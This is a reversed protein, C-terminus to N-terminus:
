GIEVWLCGTFVPLNTFRGVSRDCSMRLTKWKYHRYPLEGSPWQRLLIPSSSWVKTSHAQLALTECTRPTCNLIFVSDATHLLLPFLGWLRSLTLNQRICNDLGFVKRHPGKGREEKRLPRLANHALTQM